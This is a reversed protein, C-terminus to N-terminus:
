PEICILGADNTMYIGPEVGSMDYTAYGNQTLTGEITYAPDHYEIATFSSKYGHISYIRCDATLIVENYKTGEYWYVTYSEGYTLDNTDNVSRGHSDKVKIGKSYDPRVQTVKDTTMDRLTVYGDVTSMGITYGLCDARYLRLTPVTTSSFGVVKDNRELVPIPVEGNSLLLYGEDNEGFLTYLLRGVGKAAGPLTSLRGLSYLKGGRKLCFTRMLAKVDNETIELMSVDPAPAPAPTPDATPKPTSSPAAEPTPTPTPAAAQPATPDPPSSPRHKGCGAFLVLVMVIILVIASLRRM